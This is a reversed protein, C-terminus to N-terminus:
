IITATYESYLTQARRLQSKVSKTLGAFSDSKEIVDILNNEPQNDDSCQMVMRKMRRVRSLVDSAARASYNKEKKLWDVFGVDRMNFTKQSYDLICKAVYEALNVPVANGILQNNASPADLWIYNAPFTQILARERFTL